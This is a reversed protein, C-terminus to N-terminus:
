VQPVRAFISISGREHLSKYWAEGLGLCVGALRLPFEWNLQSCIECIVSMLEATVKHIPSLLGNESQLEPKKETPPIQTRSHKFGIGWIKSKFPNLDMSYEIKPTTASIAGGRYPDGSHGM